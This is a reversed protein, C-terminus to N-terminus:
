LEHTIPSQLVFSYSRSSRSSTFSSSSSSSSSSAPPSSPVQCEKRGNCKPFITDLLTPRSSKRVAPRKTAAPFYAPPPTLPPLATINERFKLKPTGPESEWKFPVSASAGGHYDESAM